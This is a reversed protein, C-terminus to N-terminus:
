SATLAPLVIVSESYGTATALQGLGTDFTVLQGKHRTALMLLQKDTVQNHGILRGRQSATLNRMDIDASWYEHLPSRCDRELGALAERVAQPGGGLARSAVRLFGGQTLPCTAWLRDRVGTYWSHAQASLTHEGFALAVLVNVDLLYRM